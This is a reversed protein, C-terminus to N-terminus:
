GAAHKRGGLAKVHLFKLYEIWQAVEAPPLQGSELVQLVEEIAPDAPRAAPPGIEEETLFGLAVAAKRPDLGLVRCVMRVQEPDPRTTDGSEWRIVTSRNLGAREALEDQSLGIRNRADRILNAFREGRAKEPSPVDNRYANGGTRQLPVKAGNSTASM